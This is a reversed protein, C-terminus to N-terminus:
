NTNLKNFHKLPRARGSRGGTREATASARGNGRRYTVEDPESHKDILRQRGAAKNAQQGGM